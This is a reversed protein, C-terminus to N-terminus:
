RCRPSRGAVACEGPNADVGVLLRGDPGDGDGCRGGHREGQPAAQRTGPRRRRVRDRTLTLAEISPDLPRVDAWPTWTSAVLVESRVEVMTEADSAPPRSAKAPATVSAFLVRWSCTVAAIEPLEPTVAVAPLMSTSALSVGVIRVTATLTATDAPSPAATAVTVAVSFMWLVTTALSAEDVTVAAAPSEVEGAVASTSRRGRRRRHPRDARDRDVDDVVARRDAARRGGLDDSGLLRTWAPLTSAGRAVSVIVAVGSMLWNLMPPSVTEVTFAVGVIERMSSPSRRPRAGGQGDRGGGARAAVQGKVAVRRRRDVREDVLERDAEDRDVEEVESARDRRVGDAPMPLLAVTVASSM